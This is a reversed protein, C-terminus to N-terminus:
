VVVGQMHPRNLEVLVTSTASAVTATPVARVGIIMLGGSTVTPMVRGTTASQYLAVNPNVKVATKKVPVCGSIAYWSYKSASVNASMAVALPRATDKTNPNMAISNNGTNQGSGQIYTVLAGVTSSAQGPLYIFEGAGYIPDVAKVITGVRVAPASSDSISAIAPLGLRPDTITYAM